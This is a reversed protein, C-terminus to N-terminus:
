LSRSAEIHAAAHASRYFRVMNRDGQSNIFYVKAVLNKTVGSRIVAEGLASAVATKPSHSRIVQRLGGPRLDMIEFETM